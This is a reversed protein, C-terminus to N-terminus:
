GWISSWSFNTLIFNMILWALSALAFGWLAAFITEKWKSSDWVLSWFLIKYAWIIVFIIAITWAIGMFFNIANSIILPIDDAHIKWERVSEVWSFFGDDALAKNYLLTNIITFSFLCFRKKIELHNIKNEM